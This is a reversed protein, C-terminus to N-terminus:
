AASITFTATATYTGTPYSPLNALTWSLTNGTTGTNASHAGAGFSAVATGTTTSPTVSSACGTGSAPAVDACTYGLNSMAITDTGSTLVQNLSLTISGTGGTTTTRIKYDFTTTGTYNGFANGTVNTLSTTSTDVQISAENAVVVSLTTAATPGYQAFATSAALLLVAVLTITKKM